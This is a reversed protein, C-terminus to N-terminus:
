AATVGLLEREENVWEMIEITPFYYEAGRALYKAFRRHLAKEYQIDASIVLLVDAWTSGFGGIRRGVDGTFGIKVLGDPTRVAYVCDGLERAISSATERKRAEAGTHGVVKAAGVRGRRHRVTAM